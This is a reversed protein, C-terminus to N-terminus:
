VEKYKSSFGRLFLNLKLLLRKKRILVQLSALNDSNLEGNLSIIEYLILNLDKIIERVSLYEISDPNNIFYRNRRLLYKVNELDVKLGSGQSSEDMLSIVFFRAQLLYNEIEKREYLSVAQLYGNKNEVSDTIVTKDGNVEGSHFLM